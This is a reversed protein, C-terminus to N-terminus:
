RRQAYVPEMPEEDPWRPLYFLPLPKGGAGTWDIRRVRSFDPAGFDFSRGFLLVCARAEDTKWLGGGCADEEGARLLERHLFVRGFRLTGDCTIIFKRYMLICPKQACLYSIGGVAREAGDM